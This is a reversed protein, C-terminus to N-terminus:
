PGELDDEEAAPEAADEDDETEEEAARSTETGESVEVDDFGVVNAAITMCEIAPAPADPEGVITLLAPVGPHATALADVAAGGCCDAPDMLMEIPLKTDADITLENESLYVSVEATMSQDKAKNKAEALWQQATKVFDAQGQTGLERSLILATLQEDREAVNQCSLGSRSCAQPRNFPWASCYISRCANLANEVQDLHAGSDINEYATKCEESRVISAIARRMAANPATDGDELGAKLRQLVTKADSTPAEHPYLSAAAGIAAALGVPLLLWWVRGRRPDASPM